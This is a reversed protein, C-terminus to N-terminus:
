RALSAFAHDSFGIQEPDEEATHQCRGEYGKEHQEHESSDQLPHPEIPQDPVRVQDVEGEEGNKPSECGFGHRNEGAGDPALPRTRNVSIRITM